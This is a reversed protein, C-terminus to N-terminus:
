PVIGAWVKGATDLQESNCKDLYANTSAGTRYVAMCDALQEEPHDTGPFAKEVAPNYRLFYDDLQHQYVHGLEHAAMAQGYTGDLQRVSESFFITTPQSPMVCGMVENSQVVTGCPKEVFDVGIPITTMEQLYKEVFSTGVYTDATVQDKPVIMNGGITASAEGGTAAVLPLIQDSGPGYSEIGLSPYTIGQQPLALAFAYWIAFLSSSIRFIVGPVSMRRRPQRTPQAHSM